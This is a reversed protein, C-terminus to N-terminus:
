VIGNASVHLASGTPFRGSLIAESIPDRLRRQLTRKVPRAGFAPDYSESLIQERLQPDIQMSLGQHTLLKRLSGLQL